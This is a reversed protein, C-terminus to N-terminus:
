QTLSNVTKVLKDFDLPKPLYENIGANKFDDMTYNQANGTVAIIPINSKKPDNMARIKTACEMGDMKPMNIDMLIIDFDEKELADIVEKGNKFSFIDFNQFQLIKRTLNQIVSSDEAIIVKRNSGM